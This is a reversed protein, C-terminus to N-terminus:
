ITIDLRQPDVRRPARVPAPGEPEATSRSRTYRHHDPPRYSSQSQSGPEQPSGGAGRNLLDVDFRQVKIDHEALRERLAPLNELLLSQAASSEAEVRANMVGNRITLEVRLSGLEPPHLRLRVHGGRDNAAEFARAVRQVFRVRDAQDSPTEAQRSTSAASRVAHSGEARNGVAPGVEADGGAAPGRGDATPAEVASVTSAVETAAPAAVANSKNPGPPTQGASAPEVDQPDATQKNASQQKPRQTSRPEKGIAAAPEARPEPRGATKVIEASQEAKAAADPAAQTQAKQQQDAPEAPPDTPATVSAEGPVSTAKGPIVSAEPVHTDVTEANDIPSAGTEGTSPLNDTPQRESDERVQAAQETPAEDADHAMIDPAIPQVVPVATAAPEPPEDAGNEDAAEEENTELLCTEPDDSSAAVSGTEASDDQPPEVAPADSPQPTSASSPERPPPEAAPPKASVPVPPMDPSPAAAQKARTLEAEFLDSAAREHSSHAATSAATDRAFWHAIIDHTPM